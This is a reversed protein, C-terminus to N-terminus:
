VLAADRSRMLCAQLAGKIARDPGEDGLELGLEELYQRAMQHPVPLRRVLDLDIEHPLTRCQSLIGGIHLSIMTRVCKECRGCNYADTVKGTACVRLREVLAPSQALYRTKNLRSTELGDHVFAVQETGWLPDLLPHAGKPILRAYTQSAAISVQQFFSGLALAVSALAPGHYFGVWDVVRDSFDRLNTTVPLVTKDFHEAVRRMNALLPPYREQEWLYIDFGLVNILHTVAEKGDPHQRVNKLLSYSSDVGLSFFLGTKQPSASESAEPERIPATVEVQHLQRDWCHYIAQIEPLARLLKSSVPAEVTLSEGLVMTPVLFAAVFPDGNEPDLFPKYDVPFRYWLEFPEDGWVWHTECKVRARLECSGAQDVLTIDSILM